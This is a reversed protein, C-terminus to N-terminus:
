PIAGMLVQDGLILAGTFCGRDEFRLYIPGVYPCLQKSGDALTVERKHIPELQLQIAVHEPICLYMAGIDVLAKVEIPRLEDHRPNSLAIPAYITGMRQESGSM